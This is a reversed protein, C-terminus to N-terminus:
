RARRALLRRHRKGHLCALVFVADAALVFYISYPFRRVLARRAGRYVVPYIRPSEALSRISGDVAERFERGLGPQQAEYWEQAELLDSETLPRIIIALTV